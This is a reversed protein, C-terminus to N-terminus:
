ALTGTLSNGSKFTLVHKEMEKVVHKLREFPIRLHVGEDTRFILCNDPERPAFNNAYRLASTTGAIIKDKAADSLGCFVSVEIQRSAGDPTKVLITALATEGSRPSDNCLTNQAQTHILAACFVFTFKNMM